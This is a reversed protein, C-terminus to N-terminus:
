DEKEEELKQYNQDLTLWKGTWIVPECNKNFCFEYTDGDSDVTGLIELYYIKNEKHYCLDTKYGIEEFANKLIEMKNMKKMDKKTAM